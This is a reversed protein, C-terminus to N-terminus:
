NNKILDAALKEGLTVAGAHDEIPKAVATAGLFVIYTVGSDTGGTSPDPDIGLSKAMAYSSEGIIDEPGEDGFVGFALQGKYIVAVVAGPKVGAKMYDWRSSPLPVVVYPLAAADLEGGKSDQFSTQSQYASDTKSSCQTTTKGDCDIDMDAQWFVAGNLGCISITSKEGSDTAYDGGVKNCSAVLALLDAATPAGSSSSGGASTTGGAGATSSGGKGTSSGGKGSSMGAM